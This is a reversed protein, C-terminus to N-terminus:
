WNSIDRGHRGPGRAETCNTNCTIYHLFDRLGSCHISNWQSDSSLPFNWPFLEVALALRPEFSHCCSHLGDLSCWYPYTNFCFSSQSWRPRMCSGTMHFLDYIKEKTRFFFDLDCTKRKNPETVSTFVCKKSKLSVTSKLYIYKFIPKFLIRCHLVFTLIRNVM